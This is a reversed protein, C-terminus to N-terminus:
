LACDWWSPEVRIIEDLGLSRWFAWRWIDDWQPHPKLGRSTPSVTWHVALTFGNRYKTWSGSAARMGGGEFGIVTPQIRGMNCWESRGRGSKLVKTIVNFGSSLAPYNRLQFLRLKIVVKLDRQGCLTIYDCIRPILIHVVKSPISNRRGCQTM